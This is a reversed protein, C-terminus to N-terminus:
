PTASNANDFNSQLTDKMDDFASKLRATMTPDVVAERPIATVKWVHDGVFYKPTIYGNRLDLPVSVGVTVIETDDDVVPPNVQVDAYGVGVTSLEDRITSEIEEATTGLVIGRRAGESAAIKASNILVNARSFEISALVLMFLIPATLAFEM